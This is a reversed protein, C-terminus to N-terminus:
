ARLMRGRRASGGRGRGRSSVAWEGLATDVSPRKGTRGRLDGSSRKGTRNGGCEMMQLAAVETTLAAEISAAIIDGKGACLAATAAIAATASNAKRLEDHALLWGKVREALASDHLVTAPGAQLASAIHSPVKDAVLEDALLALLVSRAVLAEAVKAAAKSPDIGTQTLAVAKTVLEEAAHSM